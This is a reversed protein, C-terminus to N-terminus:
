APPPFDLVYFCRGSQPERVFAIVSMGQAFYHTFATRTMTRWSTAEDQQTTKLLQIDPPIEVFYPGGNFTRSTGGSPPSGDAAKELLDVDSKLAIAPLEDSLDVTAATAEDDWSMRREIERTRRLVRPEDLAWEAVFRDTGIGRHLTSTEGSGYMDPVYSEIRVGLRNVNFHANRAELPDFTWYMRDVGMPLVRRRQYLKLVTGLGRGRWGAQVALMHSWHVRTDDRIGTVGFVLGVLGDGADFAGAAIGGIKQIVRMLAASVVDDFDRGWTERQLEVGSELEEFSELPRISLVTM